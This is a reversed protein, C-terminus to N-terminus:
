TNLRQTVNRYLTQTQKQISNILEKKNEPTIMDAIQLCFTTFYLVEKKIQKEDESYSM